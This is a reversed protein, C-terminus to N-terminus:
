YTRIIYVFTRCAWQVRANANIIYAICVRVCMDLLMASRRQAASQPFGQELCLPLMVLIRERQTDNM